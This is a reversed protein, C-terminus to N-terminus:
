ERLWRTMRPYEETTSLDMWVLLPLGMNQGTRFNNILWKSQNRYGDPHFVVEAPLRMALCAAYAWLHVALEDGEKEPNDETVNGGLAPREAARTVAIHGAEHVVDGPYLLRQRDLLLRGEHILIGPLFTDDRLTTDEVVIGIETLFALIPPLWATDTHSVPAPPLASPSIM